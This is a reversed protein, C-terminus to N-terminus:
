RAGDVYGMTPAKPTSRSAHRPQETAKSAPPIIFTTTNPGSQM